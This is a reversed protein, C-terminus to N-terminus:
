FSPWKQKTQKKDPARAWREGSGPWEGANRLKKNRYVSFIVLLNGLIDVVITFILFCGLTTTVWPPRNLVADSPDPASSNLHSDNIVMTCQRQVKGVSGSDVRRRPKGPNRLRRQHSVVAERPKWRWRKEQRRRGEEHVEGLRRPEATATDGKAGSADGRLGHAMWKTPVRTHCSAAVELRGLMHDFLGSLLAKIQPSCCQRKAAPRHFLLPVVKLLTRSKWKGSARENMATRGREGSYNLGNM